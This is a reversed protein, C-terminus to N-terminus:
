TLTLVQRPHTKKGCIATRSQVAIAPNDTFVGDVGQQYIQQLEDDLHSIGAPLFETEKRFTYPHVKLGYTQLETATLRAEPKYWQEKWPGFGDAYQSMLRLGQATLLDGYHFGGGSLFPDAVAPAASSVLDWPQAFNSKPYLATGSIDGILQILQAQVNFKALGYQRMWRLNTIEFSQIFVPHRAHRAHRQWQGLQNLLLASTDMGIPTGNQLRGEYKFYTPHKTELYLGVVRGTQQEFRQVLQMIEALTLVGYRDNLKANAPRISPKSERAKLQRLEALTFDESFWGETVVGDLVKSSKLAAFQPLQAVNTSQSLENEHRSVLVGDKTPVLDAEIYDAGQQMAHWYAAETHEPYDGSAGRHAIVLPWVPCSAPSGASVCLLLFLLSRM